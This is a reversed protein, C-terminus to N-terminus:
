KNPNTAQWMKSVYKAQYIADELANHAEGERKVHLRTAIPYARREITRCDNEKYHKWPVEINYQDYADKLIALDFGSGNSWVYSDKPIYVKLWKLVSELLHRYNNSFIEEKAEEPQSRWWNLTSNDVTREEQHDKWLVRYYFTGLINGTEIDFAVAGVTCIACNFFTGMTEIDIMVDVCGEKQEEVPESQLPVRVPCNVRQPLECFSVWRNEVVNFFQHRAGINNNDFLNKVEKDSLLRFGRMDGYVPDEVLIDYDTPVGIAVQGRKDMVVIRGVSDVMSIKVFDGAKNEYVQGERIISM